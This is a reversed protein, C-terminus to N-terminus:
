KILGGEGETYFTAEVQEKEGGEVLSRNEAQFLTIKKGRIINKGSWVTPDGGSLVLVKQDATYVAKEAVATKTKNDFIIKVNGRSVIKEVTTAGGSTDGGPKYFIKIRDATIVVDQQTARVNGKFEMWRMRHDSKVEDSTIHIPAGLDTQEEPGTGQSESAVPSTTALGLFLPILFLAWGIICPRKM